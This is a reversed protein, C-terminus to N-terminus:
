PDAHLQALCKHIASTEDSTVSIIALLLVLAPISLLMDIGRQIVSDVFKGFYGSIM